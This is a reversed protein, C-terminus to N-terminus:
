WNRPLRCSSDFCAVAATRAALFAPTLCKTQDVRGSTFRDAAALEMNRVEGALGPDVPDDLLGPERIM